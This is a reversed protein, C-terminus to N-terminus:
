PERPQLSAIASERMDESMVGSRCYYAYLVLQAVSLVMGLVNPLLVTINGILLGQLTWVVNVVFTAASFPLPMSEVSRTRIVTKMVILPSGYLAVNLIDTTVGCISSKLPVDDGGWHFDLNLHPVVLEFLMVLVGFSAVTLLLQAVIRGRSDSYLMFVVVYSAFLSAGIVNVLLNPMLNETSGAMTVASYYVWLSCNFVGIINPVPSFQGTSKAKVIQWCTPSPSLLYGVTLVMGAYGFDTGIQSSASPM